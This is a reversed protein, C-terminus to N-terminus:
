QYKKLAEQIRNDLTERFTISTFIEKNLFGDADAQSWLEPYNPDDSDSMGIIAIRKGYNEQKIQRCADYGYMGPMQTDMLILNPLLIRAKNIADQGDVAEEIQSYGLKRLSIGFLIRDPKYDDVLLLKIDAKEM